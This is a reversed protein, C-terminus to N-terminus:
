SERPSAPIREQGQSARWVLFPSVFLGAQGVLMRLRPLLFDDLLRPPRHGVNYRYFYDRVLSYSLPILAFGILVGILVLGFAIVAMGSVVRLRRSIQIEESGQENADRSLAIPLAIALIAGLLDLANTMTAVTFPDRAANWAGRAGYWDLKVANAGDSLLAQIWAPLDAALMIGLALATVRGLLQLRRSIRITGRDHYLAFYFALGVAAVLFALISFGALSIGTWISTRPFQGMTLVLSSFPKVLSLGSVIGTFLALKRM